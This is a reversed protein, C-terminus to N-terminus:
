LKQLGLTMSVFKTMEHQNLNRAEVVKVTAAGSVSFRTIRLLVVGIDQVTRSESGTGDRVEFISLGLRFIRPYIVSVKQAVYLDPMLLKLLLVALDQIM